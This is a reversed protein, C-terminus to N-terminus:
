TRTSFRRLSRVTGMSIGLAIGFVSALFFGVFLVVLSRWLASVLGGHLLQETFAGVIDGVSPVLQPDWITVYLEWLPIVVAIAIVRLLVRINPKSRETLDSFGPLSM